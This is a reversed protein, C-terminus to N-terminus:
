EDVSQLWRRAVRRVGDTRDAARAQVSEGQYTLDPAVEALPVLVFGREWFYPHPLTLVADHWGVGDAYLLDLDLTRPGWHIDRRRGAHTEVAQLRLLVGRPSLTSDVAAVANLFAAQDTNGWPATEYVSSLAAVELGLASMGRVGARLYALRDGMNSGLAVYYRTM